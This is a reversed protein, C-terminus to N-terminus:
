AKTYFAGLANRTMWIDAKSSIEFPSHMSLIPAGCDVVSLGHFALSLAVTGGGGYEQKGLLSSQWIIDNSDFIGRVHAMYEARAESAGYKGAGGTYRVLCPGFGLRACNLEDHVDKFTPDLAAEVDASIAQSAALAETVTLWDAEFGSKNLAAAALRTVFNSEAGTAGYSGIEERDFIILLLPKEPNQAELLAKVGVFVSVRDDQGYGGILSADLGVERAPGAPVLELESSILDDETLGWRKLLIDKLAKKLRNKDKISGEPKSVALVNLKEAPFADILKKDRQVKSDLHPLIDTITLVPDGPEEGFRVDIQRGDKLAVFGWLALPRALWQFKKLGGYLNSKLLGLDSEEYLCRPKLDLRPSDAHAVVLNFSPKAGQAKGPKFLGLLKGHHTLYGGQRAPGAQALDEFGAAQAWALLQAVVARETKAKTLFHRYDQALSEVAEFQTPTLKEWISLRTESDDEPPAASPNASKPKEKNSAM